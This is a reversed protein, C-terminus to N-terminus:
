DYKWEGVQSKWIREAEVVTTNTTYNHLHKEINEEAFSEVEPFNQDYFRFVLAALNNNLLTRHFKAFTARDMNEGVVFHLVDKLIEKNDELWTTFEAFRRLYLEKTEEDVNQLIDDVDDRFMLDFTRRQDYRLIKALQFREGVLGHRDLYWDTKIKLRLGSKHVLIFGETEELSKVSQVFADLTEYKSPICTKNVLRINVGVQELDFITAELFDKPLYEGTEINRGSLLVLEQEDYDCVIKNTPGIFEFNLTVIRAVNKLYRIAFEDFTKAVFEECIQSVESTGMKTMWHLEGDLFVPNILSGDMKDEVIWNEPNQDIEFGFQETLGDGYNFFKEMPRCICKGSKDFKAFRMELFVQEQNETFHFAGNHTYGVVNFSDRDFVSFGEAKSAITKMDNANLTRVPM